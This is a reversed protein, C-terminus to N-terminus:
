FGLNILDNHWALLLSLFNELNALTSLRSRSKGSDDFSQDREGASVGVLIDGAGAV